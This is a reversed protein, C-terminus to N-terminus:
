KVRTLSTSVNVCYEVQPELVYLKVDRQLLERFIGFNSVNPKAKLASV